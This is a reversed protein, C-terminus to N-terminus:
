RHIFSKKKLFYEYTKKLGNNLSIKCTFGMKNIKTSDLIRRPMGDPKTKDYLIKGDYGVINKVLNALQSITIDEGSGINITEPHSYEEMLLYIAEALDDVYIFERQARGSGWLTASTLKNIKAQHFKKILAPIVHSREEDFPDNIGYTNAPICSIFNKHYQSNIKECLKMGAIKAVAFGENTPEPSGTLIFEEKMPSPAQYPYACGCSIFLLKKVNHKFSSWIINNQIMLNDWLFESPSCINARIGGVRAAAVIVYQPKERGLFKEVDNQNTLDLEKRTRILLKKYGEKQYKRIIASGVLGTHGAIYIKSNKNIPM